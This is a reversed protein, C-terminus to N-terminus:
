RSEPEAEVPTKPTDPKVAPGDMPLRAEIEKRKNEMEMMAKKAEREAQKTEQRLQEVRVEPMPRFTGGRFGLFLLPLGLCVVLLLLCVGGVVALIIWTGHNSRPPPAYGIPGAPPFDGAPYGGASAPVHSFDLTQGAAAWGGTEGQRVMTERTVRGEAVFQEMAARPYPGYQQSGVLVYWSENPM